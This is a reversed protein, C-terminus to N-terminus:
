TFDCTTADVPTRGPVLNAAPGMCRQTLCARAFDLIEFVVMVLLWEGDM